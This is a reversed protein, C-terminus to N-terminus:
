IKFSSVIVLCLVCYVHHYEVSTHLLCFLCIPWVIFHIIVSLHLLSGLFSCVVISRIDKLRTLVKNCCDILLLLQILPTIPNHLKDASPAVLHGQNGPLMIEEIIISPCTVLYVNVMIRTVHGLFLIKCYMSVIVQNCPTPEHCDYSNFTKPPM